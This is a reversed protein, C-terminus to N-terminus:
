GCRTIAKKSKLSHFMSVIGFGCGGCEASALGDGTRMLSGSVASALFRRM